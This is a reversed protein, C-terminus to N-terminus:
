TLMNSYIWENEEEVSFDYLIRESTDGTTWESVMRIQKEQERLAGFFHTYLTDNPTGPLHHVTEYIKKYSIGNMM